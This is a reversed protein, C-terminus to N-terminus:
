TVCGRHEEFGSLNCGSDSASASIQRQNRAVVSSCSDAVRFGSYRVCSRDAGLVLMEAWGFYEVTLSM